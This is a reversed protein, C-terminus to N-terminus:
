CLSALKAELAYIKEQIARYGQLHELHQDQSKPKSSLTCNPYHKRKEQWVGMAVDTDGWMM